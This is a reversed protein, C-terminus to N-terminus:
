RITQILAFAGYLALTVFLLKLGNRLKRQRELFRVPDIGVPHRRDLGQYKM